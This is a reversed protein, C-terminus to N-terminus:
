QFVKLWRFIIGISVWSMTSVILVAIAASFHDFPIAWNLASLWRLPITDLNVMTEPWIDPLLFAISGTLGAIIVIIENTLTYLMELIFQWLTNLIQVPDTLLLYLVGFMDQVYDVWENFFDKLTDIISQM